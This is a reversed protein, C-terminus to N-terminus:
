DKRHAQRGRRFHRIVYCVMTGCQGPGLWRVEVELGLVARKSSSKARARPRSDVAVGAFRQRSPDLYADNFTM